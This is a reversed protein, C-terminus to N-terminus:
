LIILEGRSWWSHIPRVGCTQGNYNHKTKEKRKRSGEEGRMAQIGQFLFISSFLSSGGYSIFSLTVGTSPIMKIVGGVNLFLQVGFLAVAGTTVAFFFPQKRELALVMMWIICNIYVILLLAAFISGFEEAIASFIFDSKVIWM